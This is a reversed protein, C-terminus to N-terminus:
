FDVGLGFSIRLDDRKPLDGDAERKPTEVHDWTASFTLDLLSTLDVDVLAVLHHYADKITDTNLTVRYDLSTQM